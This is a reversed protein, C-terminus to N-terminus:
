QSTKGAWVVASSVEELDVPRGAEYLNINTDGSVRTSTSSGSPYIVAGTNIEGMMNQPNYQPLVQGMGNFIAERFRTWASSTFSQPQTMAGTAENVAQTNQLIAVRNELLAVTLDNVAQQNGAAQAEALLRELQLRQDALINGREQLLATIKAQDIQGGITGELEAIQKNLDNINLAFGARNNVDEVRADFAAKTNEKITVDLDALSDTLEQILAINRQAEAQRLVGQLGARQEELARGRQAFIGSRSFAEGARGPLAGALTAVSGLGVAGVADLLRNGLDLRGLRNQARTNIRDMADRIEQQISEFIQVRLDAVQAALQDALEGAGARRAGAIRANLENAQRTLMDRQAANLKAIAGEDGLAQAIRQFLDRGSGEREFRQTIEDAIAQQRAIQAQYVKELQQAHADRIGRRREQLNKQVAVLQEVEVAEKREVGGRRLQRLRANTKKLGKNIFGEEGLIKDMESRAISLERGTKEIDTDLKGARVRGTARNLKLSAFTFQRTLYATYRERAADMQDLVGGEATLAKLTQIDRARDKAKRSLAKFVREAERVLGAWSEIPINALAYIGKRINEIRKEMASTLFPRAADEFKLSPVGGGQYSGKAGYFGLMSKLSERSTGILSAIRNVQNSNLIWEKAHALIPVPAGEPGPVIGGEAFKGAFQKHAERAPGYRDGAIGFREYKLGIADVAADLSTAAKIAAYAASETGHLEKMVFALQVGMDQWPKGHEAAFAVLAAFRGGGWQALGRGPGGPQVAGPDLGSEQMFNGVWAAAQADNFGQDRFFKFINEAGPGVNGPEFTTTGSVPDFTESLKANAVKLVKDIAAQVLGALKGGGTVIPKGIETVTELFKGVANPNSGLEIHIHLGRGHGPWAQSGPVGAGYGVTMGQSVAWKGMAEIAAWSGGPGPVADLATGTVNHGPSKHGASRDRDYVDTPIFHYQKLLKVLLPIIRTNAEEGPFGPIPSFQPPRGEAYGRGGGGAHYGHTRKFMDALGHGYYANMAPEVYSQHQWNLVAEGAGLPYLGRDRGRQGQSGIWGGGAKGDKAEPEKLGFDIHKEGLATLAKNTEHGIYTLGIHTAQMLSQWMDAWSRKIKKENTEFNETLRELDRTIARVMRNM